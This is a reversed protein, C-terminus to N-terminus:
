AKRMRLKTVYESITYNTKKKFYQSLYPPTLQLYDAIGQISFDPKEYNERIYQAIKRLLKLEYADQGVSLYDVLDDTIETMIKRIDEFSSVEDTYIREIYPKKLIISNQDTLLLQKFVTTIVDVCISKAWYMSLNETNIFILLEEISEKIELINVNQIAKELKDFLKVPYKIEKETIKNLESFTMIPSDYVTSNYDLVRLAQRYSLHVDFVDTVFEGIGVSIDIEEYKEKLAEVVHAAYEKLLVESNKDSGVIVTIKRKLSIDSMELVFFQLGKNEYLMNLTGQIYQIKQVYMNKAVIFVISSYYRKDFVIGSLSCSELINDIQRAEGLIFSHLLYQRLGHNYKDSIRKLERNENKFYLLARELIEIEDMKEEDELRHPLMDYIYEKLKKVPSYNIKVFIPIIIGGIVFILFVGMLFIIRINNLRNELIDTPILEIFELEINSPSIAFASFNEGEVKITFRPKVDHNELEKSIKMLKDSNNSESFSFLVVGSEPDRIFVYGGDSIIAPSLIQRLSSESIVYIVIAYSNELDNLPLKNMYMINKSSGFTLNARSFYFMGDKKSLKKFGNLDFNTESTSVYIEIFDELSYVYDTSLIYDGDYSYILIKDAFSSVNYKQLESKLTIAKEPQKRVNM